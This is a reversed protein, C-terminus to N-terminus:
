VGTRLSVKQTRSCLLFVAGQKDKPVVKRPDFIVPHHEGDKGVSLLPREWGRAGASENKWCATSFKWGSKRRM